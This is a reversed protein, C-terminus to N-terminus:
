TNLNIDLASRYYYYTKIHYINQKCRAAHVKSQLHVHLYNSQFTRRDAKLTHIIKSSFFDKHWLMHLYNIHKCFYTMIRKYIM